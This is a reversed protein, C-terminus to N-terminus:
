EKEKRLLEEVFKKWEEMVKKTMRRVELLPRNDNRGYSGKSRDLLWYAVPSYEQEGRGAWCSGSAKHVIVFREDESAWIVDLRGSFDIGAGYERETWKTLHKYIVPHELADIEKSLRVFELFCFKLEETREEQVRNKEEMYKDFSEKLRMDNFFDRLHAEREKLRKMEDYLEKKKM